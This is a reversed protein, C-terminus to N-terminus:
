RGAEAVGLIRDLAPDREVGLALAQQYRMRAEALDPTPGTALLIAMNLLAETNDPNIEVARRFQAIADATQRRAHLVIGFYNRLQADNPARDVAERCDFEADDLRGEKWNIIGRLGLAEAVMSSGDDLVENALRRAGPLDDMMYLCAALGVRAGNMQPNGELARTFRDHAQELRGKALYRNGEAVLKVLTKDDM